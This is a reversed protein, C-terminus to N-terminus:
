SDPHIRGAPIGHCNMNCVSCLKPWLSFLRVDRSGKTNRQRLDGHGPKQEAEALPSFPQNSRDIKQRLISGPNKGKSRRRPRRDGRASRPCRRNSSPHPFLAHGIVLGVRAGQLPEPYGASRAQGHRRQDRHQDRQRRADHNVPLGIGELGARPDRQHEARDGHGAQAQVILNGRAEAHKQPDKSQTTSPMMEPPVIAQEVVQALTHGFPGPRDPDPSNHRLLHTKSGTRIVAGAIRVAYHGPHYQREGLDRVARQPARCGSAGAQDDGSIPGVHVRAFRDLRRPLELPDGPREVGALKIVPRIKSGPADEQPEDDVIGRSQREVRLSGGPFPRSPQAVEAGRTARPECGLEVRAGRRQRRGQDETLALVDIGLDVVGKRPRTRSVQQGDRTQLELRQGQEQILEEEEGANGAAQGREADCEHGQAIRHEDAKGGRHNTGGDHRQGEAQGGHDAPGGPRGIGQRHRPQRRQGPVREEEEIDAALEGEQGDAGQDPQHGPRLM